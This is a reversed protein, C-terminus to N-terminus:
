FSLSLLIYAQAILMIDAGELVEKFSEWIQSADYIILQLSDSELTTQFLQFATLFIPTKWLEVM